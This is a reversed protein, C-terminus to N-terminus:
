PWAGACACSRGTNVYALIAIHYHTTSQIQPWTMRKVHCLTLGALSCGVYSSNTLHGGCVVLGVYLMGMLVAVSTAMDGELVPVVGIVGVVAVDMARVRVVHVLADLRLVRDVGFMVMLMARATAMHGHGMLTVDVVQMVPVAMRGVVAVPVIM